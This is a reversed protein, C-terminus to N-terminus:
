RVPVLKQWLVELSLISHSSKGTSTAGYFAVCVLDKYNAINTVPLNAAIGCLSLFLKENMALYDDPCKIENEAVKKQLEEILTGQKELQLKQEENQKLVVPDPQVVTHYDTIMNNAAVMVVM